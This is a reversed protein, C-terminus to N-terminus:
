LVGLLTRHPREPPTTAAAAAAPVVPPAAVAPSAGWTGVAGAALALSLFGRRTLGGPPTLRSPTHRRPRSPTM